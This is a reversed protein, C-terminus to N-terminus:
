PIFSHRSNRSKRNPLTDYWQRDARLILDTWKRIKLAIIRSHTCNGTAQTCLTWKASLSQNLNWLIEPLSSIPQDNSLVWIVITKCVFDVKRSLSIASRIALRAMILATVLRIASLHILWIWSIFSDQIFKTAILETPTSRFYTSSNHAFFWFYISSFICEMKWELCDLCATLSRHLKCESPRTHKESSKENMKLLPTCIPTFDPWMM